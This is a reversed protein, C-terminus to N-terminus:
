AALGGEIHLKGEKAAEEPTKGNQRAVIYAAYWGSREPGGVHCLHCYDLGSAETSNIRPEAELQKGLTPRFSPMFLM